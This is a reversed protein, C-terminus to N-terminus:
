SSEPKEEEANAELEDDEEWEIRAYDFGRQAVVNWKVVEFFPSVDFDRPM